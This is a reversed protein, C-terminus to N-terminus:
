LVILFSIQLSCKRKPWYLDIFAKEAKHMLYEPISNYIYYGLFRFPWDFAAPLLCNFFYYIKCSRTSIITTRSQANQELLRNQILNSKQKDSIKKAQRSRDVIVHDPFWIAEVLKSNLDCSTLWGNTRSPRKSCMHALRQSESCELYVPKGFNSRKIASM